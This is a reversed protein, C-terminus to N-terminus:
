KKKQFLPPRQYVRVTTRVGTLYNREGAMCTNYMEKDEDRRFACLFYFTCMHLLRLLQEKFTSLVILRETKKGFCSLEEVSPSPFDRAFFVQSVLRPSFWRKEFWKKQPSQSLYISVPCSTKWRPAGNQCRHHALPARSLHGTDM